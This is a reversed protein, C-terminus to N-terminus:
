LPCDDTNPAPAEQAQEATQGTDTMDIVEAPEEITEYPKNAPRQAIRQQAAEREAKAADYDTESLDEPSSGLAVKCARSIVTKKCMQDTFNRHAGSLNASGQQWAKRIMEMTMIELYRTGDKRLVVAYAAKIKSIDMNDIKSTHHELQYQGQEDITYVFEDGEYVVQAYVDKIDTDRKARMLKGRYDEMFQLTSGYVVFYCQKKGISEGNIIMTLMANAISTQSCVELAPKGNKDKLEQLSLWAFQVANGANYDKPLQLEGAAQMSNVREIVLDGIEKKKLQLQKNAAAGQTTNDAM